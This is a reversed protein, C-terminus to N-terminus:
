PLCRSLSHRLQEYVKAIDIYRVKHVIGTLIWVHTHYDHKLNRLNGLMIAATDSCRNVFNTQADTNYIHHIIKTDAEEHHTCALNEVINSVVINNTATFSHCKKFNIVVYKNNMFPVMKETSWHLIFFDVLAQKFRINKLEKAFDSPRVQDLRTINFGLPTSEHRLSREYDKISASFYQDFIIGFRKTNLQTVMHLM